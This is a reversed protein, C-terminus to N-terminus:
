RGGHLLRVRLTVWQTSGADRLYLPVYGVIARYLCEVGLGMGKAISHDLGAGVQVGPETHVDIAGYGSDKFRWLGAGGILYPTTRDGSMLPVKLRFMIPVGGLWYDVPPLPPNNIAGLHAEYKDTGEWSSYGTELGVMAHDLFWDYTIGVDFGPSLFDNSYGAPFAPGGYIALVGAQAFGSSLCLVVLATPAFTPRTM